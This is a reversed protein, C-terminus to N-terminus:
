QPTYFRVSLFVFCVFVAHKWSLSGGLKVRPTDRPTQNKEVSVRAKEIQFVRCQWPPRCHRKSQRNCQGLQLCNGESPIAWFLMSIFIMGYRVLRVHLLPREKTTLPCLTNKKKFARDTISTNRLFHLGFCDQMTELLAIKSIGDRRNKTQRKQDRGHTSLESFCSQWQANESRSSELLIGSSSFM